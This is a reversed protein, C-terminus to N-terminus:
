DRIDAVVPTRGRARAVSTTVSSRLGARWDLRVNLQSALREAAGKALRMTRARPAGPELWARDVRLVGAARDTALDLRGALLEGVLVPMTYYGYIRKAAPVFAEFRYDFGFLELARTRDRILPDFPALLRPTPDPESQLVAERWGPRAFGPRPTRGIRELLVREVKGEQAARACWSQAEAMSVANMFAAIERATAAGLRALSESCAWECHADPAPPEPLQGHVRHALDYVKEFGHRSHVAVDGVRWLYELTAKHPSWDWWGQQGKRRRPLREHVDRIGMPGCAELMDLAQRVLSRWNRGLRERMWRDKLFRARSRRFRHTWWPLWDARILSADHTWHEFLSRRREAHHALQRPDYGDLRSHLILHHAREVSTISDVQIFGLKRVVAVV